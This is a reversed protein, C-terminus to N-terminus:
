RANGVSVLAVHPHEGLPRTIMLGAREAFHQYIGPKVTYHWNVLQQARSRVPFQAVCRRESYRGGAIPRSYARGERQDPCEVILADQALELHNRSVTLRAQVGTCAPCGVTRMGAREGDIYQQRGPGVGIRQATEPLLVAL